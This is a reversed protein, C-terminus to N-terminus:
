KSFSAEFEIAASITAEDLEYASAMTEVDEGGRFMRYLAETRIRTGRITPHGFEFRPDVVVPHDRGRPNWREALGTPSFELQQLYESLTEKMAIQGAGILEVFIEDEDEAEVNIQVFVGNPDAFWHRLAFPHESVFLRQATELAARIRQWSLGLSRMEKVSFLEVFEVFTLTYRGERKPLETEIVGPYDKGRRYGFAWRRVSGTDSGILRAAEATTFLGKSIYPSLKVM